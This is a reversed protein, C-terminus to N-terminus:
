RDDLVLVGSEVIDLQGNRLVCRAVRDDLKRVTGLTMSDTRRIPSTAILRAQRGGKSQSYAISITRDHTEQWPLRIKLTVQQKGGISRALRAVIEPPAKADGAGHHLNGDALGIGWQSMAAKEPECGLGGSRNWGLWLEIHDDHIWNAAGTSFAEDTVTVVLDRPSTMLFRLEAEYPRARPEGFVIYADKGVAISSACSGLHAVATGVPLAKDLRPVVRHHHPAKGPECGLEDKEDANGCPHPKWRRIGSFLQWNWYDATFGPSLTHFGCSDETLVRLPSLQITQANQWRWASGGYQSHILRNPRITVNDEGVGSAGYGDNCLDLLKKPAQGPATLWFEQRHPRCNFNENGSKDEPNKRGLNLETVTLANGGADTGAPHHKVLRCPERKACLAAVDAATQAASEALPIWSM